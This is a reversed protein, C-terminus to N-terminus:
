FGLSWYPIKWQLIPLCIGCGTSLRNMSFAIIFFVTFCCICICGCHLLLNQRISNLLWVPDYYFVRGDSAAGQMGRRAQVSVAAAAQNLFRMNILISDRAYAMIKEALLFLKEEQKSVKEGSKSQSPKMEGYRVSM